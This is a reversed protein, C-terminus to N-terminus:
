DRHPLPGTAGGTLVDSMRAVFEGKSLVRDLGAAKAREITQVDAHGVFGTVHRNSGSRWQAAVDLFGEQTLDVIMRIANSVEVLKLPDRVVKVPANVTQATATIKSVFLLDRCLVLIPPPTPTSETM